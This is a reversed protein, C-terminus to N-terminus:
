VRIEYVKQTINLVLCPLKEFFATVFRYISTLKPLYHFTTESRLVHGFPVSYKIKVKAEAKENVSYVYLRCLSISLLVLVLKLDIFFVAKCATSIFFL